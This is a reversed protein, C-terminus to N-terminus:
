KNAMLSFLMNRKNESLRKNKNWRTRNKWTKKLPFKKKNGHKDVMIINESADNKNLEEKIQGEEKIEKKTNDSPCNTSARSQDPRTKKKRWGRMKTKTVPNAHVSFQRVNDRMKMEDSVKQRTKDEMKLGDNLTVKLSEKNWYRTIRIVMEEERVEVKRWGEVQNPKNQNPEFEVKVKRSFLM